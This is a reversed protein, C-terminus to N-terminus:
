VQYKWVQLVDIKIYLLLAKRLACVVSENEM